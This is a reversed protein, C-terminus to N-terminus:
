TTWNSSRGSSKIKLRRYLISTFVHRCIAEKFCRRGKGGKFALIPPSPKNPIPNGYQASLEPLATYVWVQLAQIFGDVTYCGMIDKGKLSDMLVKFAVSGWPYNEFRELDM